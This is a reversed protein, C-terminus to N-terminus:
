SSPGDSHGNDWDDWDGFEVASSTDHSECSDNNYESMRSLAGKIAEEGANVAPPIIQVNRM